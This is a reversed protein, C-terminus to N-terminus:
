KSSQGVRPSANKSKTGPELTGKEGPRLRLDHNDVEAWVRVQGNVPNVEPSIFVFQGPYEARRGGLEASLTVPAGLLDGTAERSPLFAEARLKDLRILRLIPEGPNVWEGRQRNIQVVMGAFPAVVQRREVKLQASRLEAQKQKALRKANSQDELVQEVELEAKEAALRLQDMETESISKKLKDVSEKARRYEAAAVEHAKKAYRVRVDNDAKAAAIEWELQAKLLAAQAEDDEISGLKEGSAVLQGERVALADIAGAEKAPLEVQEVLTLLVGQIPPGAAPSQRAATDVALLAALALLGFGCKGVRSSIAPFFRM